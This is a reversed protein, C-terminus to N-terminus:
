RWEGEVNALFVKKNSFQEKFGLPTPRLGEDCGEGWVVEGSVTYEYSKTGSVTEADKKSEVNLNEVIAEEMCVYDQLIKKKLDEESPGGSCSVFLIIAMSYIPFYIKQM